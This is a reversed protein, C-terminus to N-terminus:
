GHYYVLLLGHVTCETCNRRFRTLFWNWFWKRWWAWRFIGSTWGWWLWVRSWWKLHAGCSRSGLMVLCLQSGKSGKRMGQVKLVIGINYFGLFVREDPYLFHVFSRSDKAGGPFMPSLLPNVRPPQHHCMTLQIYIILVIKELLTICYFYPLHLVVFYRWREQNLGRLRVVVLELLPPTVRSNRWEDVFCEPWNIHAWFVIYDNFSILDIQVVGIIVATTTIQIM